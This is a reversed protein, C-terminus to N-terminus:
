AEPKREKVIRIGEFAPLRSEIREELIALDIYLDIYKDALDQVDEEWQQDKERRLFVDTFTRPREDKQLMTLLGDIILWIIFRAYWRLFETERSAIAKNVFRRDHELARDLNLTRKLDRARNVAHARIRNDLKLNLGRARNIVEHLNFESAFDRSRAEDRACKLAETRTRALARSLARNIARARINNLSHILERVRRLDRHLTLQQKLGLEQNHELQRAHVLAREIDLVRAIDRSLNRELELTHNLAQTLAHSLNLALSRTHSLRDDQALELALAYAVDRHNELQQGVERDFAREFDLDLDRDLTRARERLMAHNCDTRVRKELASISLEVTPKSELTYQSGTESCTWYGGWANLLQNKSEPQEILNNISEGALAVHETTGIPECEGRIPLRYSWGQVDRETLWQCFAEADSPRVGFVPKQGSAPAFQHQPWHDPQFHNGKARQEDLFLQYEAHTILSNDLYLNEEVRTMRKLRLALLAEAVLRRREPDIDEMGQELISQLKMRVKPQVKLAESECDLALTLAAVSPKDEKLCAAILRTADANSCYLRITEHWWSEEIRAGKLLEDELQQDLLHAAALYEQFTLHAFSYEGSERELLLGSSNEIMRLFDAGNQKPDVLKLRGAIVQLAEDVPIQRQKRSMMHYALPQLVTQKQRPTLNIRMGRAQQRKGLFADCIEAYLEVRREPLSSRYRHVTAIMTLLLPNVALASLAPTHRIRKILDEAGELAKMRVGPDDKQYSKIQNALYWREVFRRMQKSTFPQVELVMVNRLPNSRYGFPRSTVIFRNKRYLEIQQEVWKVVRQRTKPEAVEDLGDLMVLCEGRKLYKEFWAVPPPDSMNGILLSFHVAEALTYDSKQSIVQTHNRLFLLLPLQDSPSNFVRKQGNVLSLTMHQLLTTKGSGPPGIIALNQNELPLAGLFAWVSHTGEQLEDSVNLPDVTADHAARPAVKLEVFLDELMLAFVGQTSLGKMDFDRYRFILQEVYRKRHRSFLVKVRKGLRMLRQLVPYEELEQWVNTVFGFLVVMVGYLVVLGVAEVPRESVFELFEKFFIIGVVPVGIAVFWFIRKFQNSM